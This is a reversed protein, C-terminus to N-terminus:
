LSKNKYLSSAPHKALVSYPISLTRQGLLATYPSFSPARPKWGIGTFHNHLAPTEAVRAASQRKLFRDELKGKAGGIRREAWTNTCYSTFRKLASLEGM